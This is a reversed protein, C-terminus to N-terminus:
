GWTDPNCATDVFNESKDDVVVSDGEYGEVEVYWEGPYCDGSGSNTASDGAVGPLDMCNNQTIRWSWGYFPTAAGWWMKVCGKTLEGCDHFYGEGDIGRADDYLWPEGATVTSCGDPATSTAQASGPLALMVLSIALTAGAAGAMALLGTKIRHQAVSGQM